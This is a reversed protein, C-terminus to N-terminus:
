LEFLLNLIQDIADLIDQQGSETALNVDSFMGGVIQKAAEIVYPALSGSAGIVLIKKM